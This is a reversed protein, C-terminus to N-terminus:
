GFAFNTFHTIIWWISNWNFLLGFALLLGVAAIGFTFLLSIFFNRRYDIYVWISIIGLLIGFLVLGFLIIITVLEV